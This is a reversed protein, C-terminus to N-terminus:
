WFDLCIGRGVLRPLLVGGVAGEDDAALPEVVPGDGKAGEDVALDDVGAVICLSKCCCEAAAAAEEDVGVAGADAEFEFLVVLAFL